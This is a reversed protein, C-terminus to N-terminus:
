PAPNSRLGGAAGTTRGVVEGKGREMDAEGEPESTEAGSLPRKAKQRSSTGAETTTNRTARGSQRPIAKAEPAGRSEPRM